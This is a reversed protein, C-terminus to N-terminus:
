SSKLKKWRKRIKTASITKIHEPVEVISYGVNRGVAVMEIDPISIVKVSAIGKYILKIIKVRDDSSIHAECDRVAICM